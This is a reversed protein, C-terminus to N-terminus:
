RTDRATPAAGRGSLHGRADIGEIRQSAIADRRALAPSPRGTTMAIRALREARAEPTLRIADLTRAVGLREFEF